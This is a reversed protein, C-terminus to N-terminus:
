HLVVKVSRMEQEMKVMLGILLADVVIIMLVLCQKLANTKSHVLHLLVIQPHSVMRVNIVNVLQVGTKTLFMGM